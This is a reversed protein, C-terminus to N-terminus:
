NVKKCILEKMVSNILNRLKIENLNLNKYDAISIKENVSITYNVPKEGADYIKQNKALFKYDCGIHLPIIDADSHIAISAAGKHLKLEENELTRTGSPFIVINYGAELAEKAEQKLKENDEDNILYLSTVINSMIINKKVEKKVICLSHPILGILLVIDIFSPHNAVIVKGRLSYLYDRDSESINLKISDTAEMFNTFFAWSDHILTCLYDRRQEQKVFVKALPFVVLAFFLSCIGFFAFSYIVTFARNIKSMNM